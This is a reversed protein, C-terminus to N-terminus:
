KGGEPRRPWCDLDRANRITAAADFAIQLWDERSAMSSDQRRLVNGNPGQYHAYLSQPSISELAGPALEIKERKVIAKLLENAVLSYGVVTPHLNDISFMGGAEIHQGASTGDSLREARRSFSLVQNDLRVVKNGLAPLHRSTIVIQHDEMGSHKYDYGDAVPDLDVFSFRTRTLGNNRAEVRAKLAANIRRNLDDAERVLAGSVERSGEPAFDLVYSEYYNGLGPRETQGRGPKLNAISSPRLQGLVYIHEIEKGEAVLKDLLRDMGQLFVPGSTDAISLYSKWEKVEKGFTFSVDGCYDNVPQGTYLFTFLGSNSGVGVILRKPQRLIVQDLPTMEEICADRTPDLVFASNEAFFVTTLAGAASAAEKLGRVNKADEIIRAYTRVGEYKKWPKDRDPPFAESRRHADLRRRYDRATGYLIDDIAAGGFALNDNFTPGDTAKYDKFWAMRAAQDRVFPALGSLNVTELDLGLRFTGKGYPDKGYDPYSPVAFGPVPEQKAIGHLARAVQAPPSWDALWWNIQMSSVGNFVSGGLAMMAPRRFPAVTKHVDDPSCTGFSRGAVRALREDPVSVVPYDDVQLTADEPGKGCSSLVAIVTLGAAAIRYRTTSTM